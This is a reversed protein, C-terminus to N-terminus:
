VGGETGGTATVEKIADFTGEVLLDMEADSLSLPPMWVIVDGLQRIYVGRQLALAAAREGLAGPEARTGPSKGNSVLEIGAMFGRQRVTGVGPLTKFRALAVSLREIKPRLNALVDDAEFLDLSALAAACALPNGSYTHGHPLLKLGPHDDSFVRYIEETVATAALPLYGGSLGKAMCLIDPVVNEQECAFLTGTKGFGTAVEDAVMLVDHRDCLTRVGALYGDFAIRMGGAGQVLPELVVAAVEHAHGELVRELRLLCERGCTAPDLGIECRGCYPSPVIQVPFLLDGFISKNVDHPADLSKVGNTDGHYGFGLAIFRRKRRYERSKQYWYLYAIKLAAEV